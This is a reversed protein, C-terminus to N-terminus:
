HPASAAQLQAVPPKDALATLVQGDRCPRALRGHCM